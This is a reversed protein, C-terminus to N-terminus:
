LGLTTAPLCDTSEDWAASLRESHPEAASPMAMWLRGSLGHAHPKRVLHQRDVILTSEELRLHAPLQRIACRGAAARHLALFRDARTALWLPAAVLLRVRVNRALAAKLARAGDTRGLPWASFDPDLMLVDHRALELAAVVAGAFAERGTFPQDQPEKV